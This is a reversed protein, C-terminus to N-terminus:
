LQETNEFCKGQAISSYENGEHRDTEKVIIDKLNFIIEKESDRIADLEAGQM